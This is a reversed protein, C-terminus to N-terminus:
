NDRKGNKIYSEIEDALDILEDNSVSRRRGSMHMAAANVAEIRLQEKKSLPSTQKLYMGKRIM